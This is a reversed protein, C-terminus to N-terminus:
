SNFVPSLIGSKVMERYRLDNIISNKLKEKCIYKRVKAYAYSKYGMITAIETLPIKKLFLKLVKQDDESMRLFHKQFLNFKENEEIQSEINHSDELTDFDIYEKYEKRMGNKELKQFWINRCIAYLYTSFACTLRLNGAKIKQYIVVLADQFVDEADMQTGSNSTVMFRVQQFFKKYIYKIILINQSNLGDIVAEDSYIDKIPSKLEQSRDFLQEAALYPSEQITIATNLEVNTM